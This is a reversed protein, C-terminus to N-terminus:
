LPGSMITSSTDLDGSSVPPKLKPLVGSSAPASATPQLKLESLCGALSSLPASLLTPVSSNKVRFFFAAVATLVPPPTNGRGM